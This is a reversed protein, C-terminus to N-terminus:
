GGSIETAKRQSSTSAWAVRRRINQIKPADALSFLHFCVIVGLPFMSRSTKSADTQPKDYLVVNLLSHHIELKGNYKIYGLKRFKNMFHSVTISDDRDDGGPNGSQWSCDRSNRSMMCPLLRPSARLSTNMSRRLRQSVCPHGNLCGESFFHSQGLVGVVAEKGREFRRHVQDQGIPHLFQTPLTVKGLFM